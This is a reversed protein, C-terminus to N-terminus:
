QWSKTVALAVPCADAFLVISSYATAISSSMAFRVLYCEFCISASMLLLVLAIAFSKAAMLGLAAGATAAAAVGPVNSSIALCAAFRLAQISFHLVVV